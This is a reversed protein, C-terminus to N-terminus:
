SNVSYIVPLFIGVFILFLWIASTTTGIIAYEKGILRGESNKIQDFSKTGLVLGLISAVGCSFLTMIFHGRIVFDNVSAIWMTGSSFPGLIGFAASIIALKSTRPKSQSSDKTEIINEENEMQNKGYVPGVSYITLVPASFQLKEL